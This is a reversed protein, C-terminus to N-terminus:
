NGVFRVPGWQDLGMLLGLSAPPQFVVVHAELRTLFFSLRRGAWTMRPCSSFVWSNVGKSPAADRFGRSKLRKAIM